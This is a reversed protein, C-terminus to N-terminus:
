GALYGLLDSGGHRPSVRAGQITFTLTMINVMFNPNGGTEGKGSLAKREHARGM